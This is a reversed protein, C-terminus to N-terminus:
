NSDEVAKVLQLARGRMLSALLGYLKICRTKEETTALDMDFKENPKDHSGKLDEMYGGDVASLYKEFVWSWERSAKIEEEQSKYEFINPKATLTPWDTTSSKKDEDAKKIAEAASTTALTSEAMTQLIERVEEM